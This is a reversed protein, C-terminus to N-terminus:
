DVLRKISWMLENHKDEIKAQKHNTTQVRKLDAFAPEEIGRAIRRKKTALQELSYKDQRYDSVRDTPVMLDAWNAEDLRM